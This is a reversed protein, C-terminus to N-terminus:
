NCYEMKNVSRADRRPWRPRPFTAQQFRLLLITAPLQRILPSEHHYYYYSLMIIPIDILLLPLFARLIWLSIPLIWNGSASARWRAWNSNSPLACNHLCTVRTTIKARPFCCFLVSCSLSLVVCFYLLFSLFCLRCCSPAVYLLEM